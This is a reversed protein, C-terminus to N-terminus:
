LEQEQYPLEPPEPKQQTFARDSSRRVEQRRNLVTKREYNQQYEKSIQAAQSHDAPLESEDRELSVSTRNLSFSIKLVLFLGQQQFLLLSLLAVRGNPRVRSNGDRVWSSAVALFFQLIKLSYLLQLQKPSSAASMACVIPRQRSLSRIDGM